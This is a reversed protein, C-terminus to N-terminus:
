GPNGKRPRGRKPVARAEALSDPDLPDSYHRAYAAVREARTDGLALFVAHEVIAADAFLGLHHRASSWPYDEIRAVMGARVPNQEVYRLTKM